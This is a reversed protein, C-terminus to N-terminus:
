KELMEFFLYMFHRKYKNNQKTKSIGRIRDDENTAQESFMHMMYCFILNIIVSLIDYQILHCCDNLRRNFHIIPIKLILNFINYIQLYIYSHFIKIHNNHTGILNIMEYILPLSEFPM